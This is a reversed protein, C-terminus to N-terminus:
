LKSDTKNREQLTELVVKILLAARGGLDKVLEDWDREGAWIRQIISPLRFWDGKGLASFSAEVMTQTQKNGETASVIEKIFDDFNQHIDYLNGPYAAYTERQRRLYIDTEITKGQLGTIEALIKLTKWPETFLGANEKIALAQEAYNRAEELRIHSSYGKKVQELLLDALNSFDYALDILNGSQEDLALARRYWGEAEDLRNAGIAVLALQHYTNAAGYLDGIHEAIELSKRYCNEAENWDKQNEAVMGLQHWIIAESAREAVGQFFSLAEEYYAKAKSYDCINLALSGLQALTAAEGPKHNIQRELQLAEEYSEQAAKYKGQNRFNDGLSTLLVTQERTWLLNYAQDTKNIKCINLGKRLYSEALALQGNETLCRGMWNLAICHAFTGQFEESSNSLTEIRTLIHSFRNAAKSIEGRLFEAQGQGIEQTLEWETLSNENENRAAVLTLRRRWEEREWTFGFNTLFMVLADAMLSADNIKNAELLLNLVNRFNPLERLVLTRVSFPNHADEYSLYSILEVYRNQYREILTEDIISFLGELYPTLIPHFHIFPLKMGPIKESSILGALELASFLESWTTTPIDTVFLLESEYAGGKFIALKPLWVKQVETLRRLSYELSTLLSANRGTEAEDQFKGSALLTAFQERVAEIKMDALAPLTLQIALPHHDLQTLLDRLESYPARVRPIKLAELLRTALEYADETHLGKLSLHEVKLGPVLQGDGFALSRTTLIVGGGKAEAIELLIEWLQAREGPDALYAEGNPLITELNDVVVLTPHGVLRAKVKALAKAFDRPDYDSRIIGLYRGLDALLSNSNGGSMFSAFFASRYMGTRTLWDAAEWSLATKGTGGFGYLVVLKGRLLAREITQLERARGVFGYRPEPPQREGGLRDIKLAKKKKGKEKAKSKPVPADLKFSFPRQQYYHPLWWDRLEIPRAETNYSRRHSHRKPDAFLARRTMEQAKPVEIGLALARYFAEVYRTASAVLVSASMAVVGDVGSKILRGAVSSFVDEQSGMASQCANLVALRVGSNALIQGLESAEVLDLNGDADEFALKGQAGHAAMIRGDEPNIQGEFVGHGDFQLIHVQPLREEGLRDSLAKRTPPRLFELAIKGAEVQGQLEDLLERAISRPDIFGTKEPRATVVLVRLPAEFSKREAKLSQPLRRVISVPNRSRLSLFSLGDHLLEWPLSMAAPVDGILSIQRLYPEDGDDPQATRWEAFLENIESQLFAQHYLRQGIEELKGEISHARIAFEGYPWKYYRELYWNLDRREETTLPDALSLPQGTYFLGLQDCRLTYGAVVESPSGAPTPTFTLCLDLQQSM